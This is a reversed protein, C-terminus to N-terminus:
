KTGITVPITTPFEIEIETGKKVSNFHLTGSLISVRSEINKLGIGKKNKLEKHDIGKGNDRYTLKCKETIGNLTIEVATAEAHKLTNNLLEQLIRYLNLEMQKNSLQISEQEFVVSLEGSENITDILSEIGEILGLKDLIVPRLDQSIRRTNQIMDDFLLNMKSTVVNLDTNSLDANIQGAYLKTTTLMAGIEDHLEKAIRNREVEQSDITTKLLDRQYDAAEKERAKQQALLRRQYKVFFLIVFISLLFVIVMSVIFAQLAIGNQASDM